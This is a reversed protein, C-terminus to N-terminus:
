IKSAFDRISKHNYTECSSGVNKAKYRYFNYANAVLDWSIVATQNSEKETNM